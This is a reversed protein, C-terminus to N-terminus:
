RRKKSTPRKKRTKQKFQRNQMWLTKKLHEDKELEIEMAVILGYELIKHLNHYKIGFYLDFVSQYQCVDIIIKRLINYEEDDLYNKLAVKKLLEILRNESLYGEHYKPPAMKSIM